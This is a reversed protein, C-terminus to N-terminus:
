MTVHYDCSTTRTMHDDCSYLWTSDAASFVLLSNSYSVPGLRANDASFVLELGLMTLLFFGSTNYRIHISLYPSSGVNIATHVIAKLKSVGNTVDVYQLPSPNSTFPM